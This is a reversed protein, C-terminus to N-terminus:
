TTDVEGHCCIQQVNDLVASMREGHEIIAKKAANFTGYVYGKGEM